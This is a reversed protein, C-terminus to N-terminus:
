SAGAPGSRGETQCRQMGVPLVPHWMHSESDERERAPDKKEDQEDGAEHHRCGPVSSEGKEIGDEQYEIVCSQIFFLFM